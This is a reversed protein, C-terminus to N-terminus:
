TQMVRVADAPLHDPPHCTACRRATDPERVECWWRKGACIPCAGPERRVEAFARGRDAGCPLSEWLRRHAHFGRHLGDRLPDPDWPRYPQEEGEAAYHAVMAAREGADHDMPAPDPSAPQVEGAEGAQGRVRDVYDVCLPSAAGEAPTKDITDITDKSLDAFLAGWRSM